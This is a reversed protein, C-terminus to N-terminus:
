KNERSDIDALLLIMQSEHAIVEEDEGQEAIKKDLFAVAGPFLLKAMERYEKLTM